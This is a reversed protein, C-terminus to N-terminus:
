GYLRAESGDARGIQGSYEVGFDLDLPFGRTEGRESSGRM